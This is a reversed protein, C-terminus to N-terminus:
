EHRNAISWGSICSESLFATVSFTRFIILFAFCAAVNQLKFKRAKVQSEAWKENIKQYLVTESQTKM